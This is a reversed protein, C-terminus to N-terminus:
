KIGPHVAIRNEKLALNQLEISSPFSIDKDPVPQVCGPLLILIVTVSLIIRKDM